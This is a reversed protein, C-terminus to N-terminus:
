GCLVVGWALRILSKPALVHLMLRTAADTYGKETYM